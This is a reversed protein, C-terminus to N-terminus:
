LLYNMQVFSIALFNPTESWIQDECGYKDAQNYNCIVDGGLEEARITM